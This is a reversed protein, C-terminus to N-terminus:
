VALFPILRHYRDGELLGSQGIAQVDDEVFVMGYGQHRDVDPVVDPGLIFFQSAGPEGVEELV